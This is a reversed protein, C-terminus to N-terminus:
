SAIPTASVLCLNRLSFKEQIHGGHESFYRYPTARFVYRVGRCLKGWVNRNLLENEKVWVHDAAPNGSYRINTLLVTPNNYDGLTPRGNAGFEAELEIEQGVHRGLSSRRITGKKKSM